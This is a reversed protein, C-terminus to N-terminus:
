RRLGLADMTRRQIEEEAARCLESQTRPFSPLPQYNIRESQLRIASSTILSHETFTPLGFSAAVSKGRSCVRHYTYPPVYLCDGPQVTTKICENLPSLDSTNSQFALRMGNTMDAALEVTWEKEGELVFYFVDGTDYHGGSSSASLTCFIDLALVPGGLRVGSPFAPLLYNSLDNYYGILQYWTSPKYTLREPLMLAQMVISMGQAM